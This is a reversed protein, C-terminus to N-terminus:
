VSSTALSVAVTKTPEIIASAATLDEALLVELRM